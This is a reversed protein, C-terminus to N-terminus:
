NQEGGCLERENQSCMCHSDESYKQIKKTEGKLDTCMLGLLDHIRDSIGKSILVLLRLFFFSAM